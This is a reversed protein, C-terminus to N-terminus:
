ASWVLDNWADASAVWVTRHRVLQGGEKEFPTFEQDVLNFQGFGSGPKLAVPNTSGNFVAILESARLASNDVDNFESVDSIDVHLEARLTNQYQTKTDDDPNDRTEMHIGFYDIMQKTNEVATYTIGAM